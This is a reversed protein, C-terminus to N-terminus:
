DCKVAGGWVFVPLTAMKARLLVALQWEGYYYKLLKDRSKPSQVCGTACIEQAGECVVAGLPWPAGVTRVSRVGQCLAGGVSIPEM